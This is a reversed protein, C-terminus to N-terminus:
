FFVRANASDYFLNSSITNFTVGLGKTNRKQITQGDTYFENYTTTRTSGDSSSGLVKIGVTPEHPFNETVDKYNFIGAAMINRYPNAQKFLDSSSIFEGTIPVAVSGLFVFKQPCFSGSIEGYVAGNFSSVDVGAVAGVNWAARNVNDYKKTIQLNTDLPSVYNRKDNNQAITVSTIGLIFAAVPLIKRKM